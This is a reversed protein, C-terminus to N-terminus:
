DWEDPPTSLRGFWMAVSDTYRDRWEPPAHPLIRTWTLARPLAGLRMATPLAARLRDRPAISTWADLYVDTTHEDVFQSTVAFTMFPHSVCADGWDLIRVAGDRVFVQGDHLDDHQITEPIGFSALEECLERVLAEDRGGLDAYLTPLSALRADPVGAAVLAGARDAAARQLEAYPGLIADWGAAHPHERLRAGADRLLLWGRDLDAAVVHPLLDPALPSLTTVLAAEHDFGPASAKFFLDKYPTPVRLVTSWPRVHVQEIEGAVEAHDAVWARAEALWAQDTWRETV